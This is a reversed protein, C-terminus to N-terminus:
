LTYMYMTVGSGYVRLMPYLILFIYVLTDPVKSQSQIEYFHFLSKVKSLGVIDNSLCNRFLVDDFNTVNICFSPIEHCLVEWYLVTPVYLSSLTFINAKGM